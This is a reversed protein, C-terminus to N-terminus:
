SSASLSSQDCKVAYLRPSLRVQWSLTKYQIQHAKDEVFVDKSMGSDQKEAIIPANDDAYPQGYKSGSHSAM